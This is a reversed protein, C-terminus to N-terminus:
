LAVVVVVVVVSERDRRRALVVVFSLGREVVDLEFDFLIVEVIGSGEFWVWSGRLSEKEVSSMVLAKLAAAEM